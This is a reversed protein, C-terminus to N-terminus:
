GSAEEDPTQRKKKRKLDLNIEFDFNEGREQRYAEFRRTIWLLLAALIGWTLAFTALTLPPIATAGLAALVLFLGALVLLFLAFLRAARLLSETM